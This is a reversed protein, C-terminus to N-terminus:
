TQHDLLPTGNVWVQIRQGEARVRLKAWQGSPTFGLRADPAAENLVAGTLTEAPADPYSADDQLQIELFDRGDVPADKRARLFVGSNGRTPLRYELELELDAFSRKSALWGVGSGDATLIHDVASWKGEGVVEWGELDKGNFLSLWEGSPWEK